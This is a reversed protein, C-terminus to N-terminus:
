GNPDLGSGNDGAAMDPPVGPASNAGDPDLGSGNTWFSALLDWLRSFLGLAESSEVASAVLAGRPQAIAQVPALVGLTLLLLALLFPRAPHRSM